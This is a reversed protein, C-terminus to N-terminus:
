MHAEHESYTHTPARHLNGGPEKQEQQVNVLCGVFNRRVVHQGVGSNTVFRLFRSKLAAFIWFERLTKVEVKM